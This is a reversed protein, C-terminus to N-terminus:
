RYILNFLKRVLTNQLDNIADVVEDIKAAELNNSGALGFEQALFKAIAMSQSLTEGKYELFPLQGFPLSPKLDAMDAPEIRKDEYKQGALALILRSTEAKGKANYHTLKIETMKNKKLIDASVAQKLWIVTLYIVQISNHQHHRNLAPVASVRVSEIHAQSSSSTGTLWPTFHVNLVYLNKGKKGQVKFSM